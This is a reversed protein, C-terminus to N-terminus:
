WQTDAAEENFSDLEFSNQEDGSFQCWKPRGLPLCFMNLVLVFCVFDIFVSSIVLIELVCLVHARQIRRSKDSEIKLSVSNSRIHEINQTKRTKKKM